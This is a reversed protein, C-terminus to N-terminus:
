KPRVQIKRPKAEPSKPLRISLVGDKMTAEINTPDVAEPLDITREFRGYSRGDYIARRGEPAKREGRIFLTGRHITVDVDGDALGPLEAEVYLHDEDEWMAMPMGGWAHTAPAAESFVRDFISDLRNIPTFVTPVAGNRLVPLM